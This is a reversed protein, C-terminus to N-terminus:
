RRLSLLTPLQSTHFSSVLAGFESKPQGPSKKTQMCRGLTGDPYYFGWESTETTQMAAEETPSALSLGWRQETHHLQNWMHTKLVRMMPKEVSIAVCASTIIPETLPAPFPYPPMRGTYPRLRFGNVPKQLLEGQVTGLRFTGDGYREVVWYPGGWRLKLKGPHPGMRTNFLLVADGRRFIKKKSHRDVWIKRRDQVVQALYASNFREEGLRDLQEIRREVSEDWGLKEAAAIRLSPVLFEMPVVAEVGYVLKFPTFGTAVKFSTRFAWLASYLKEDWDTRNENVLKKLIVLLM